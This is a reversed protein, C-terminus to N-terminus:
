KEEKEKIVDIDNIINKNAISDYFVYVLAVEFLIMFILIIFGIFTLVPPQAQAQETHIFLGDVGLYIVFGFFPIGFLCAFFNGIRERILKVIVKEDAEIKM